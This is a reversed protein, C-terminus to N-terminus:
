APTNFLRTVTGCTHGDRAHPELLPSEFKGARATRCQLRHSFRRFLLSAVFVPPVREM